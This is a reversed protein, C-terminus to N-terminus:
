VNEKKKKMFKEEKKIKSRWGDKKMGTKHKRQTMNMMNVSNKGHRLITGSDIFNRSKKM